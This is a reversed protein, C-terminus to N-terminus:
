NESIVFVLGNDKAVIRKLAGLENSHEVSNKERLLYLHPWTHVPQFKTRM